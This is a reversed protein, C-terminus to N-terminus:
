SNVVRSSAGYDKYSVLPFDLCGCKIHLSSKSFRKLFENEIKAAKNKTPVNLGVLGYAGLQGDFHGVGLDNHINKLLKIAGSKTVIYGYAGWGSMKDPFDLIRSMIPDVNLSSGFDSEQNMMKNNVYILDYSGKLIRSISFKSPKYYFFADDELILAVDVDDMVVKELASIHALFCGLAGPQKSMLDSRHLKSRAYEPLYKAVVGPVRSYRIVAKDLRSEMRERKIKDQDLNIYYTPIEPKGDFKLSLGIRTKIKKLKNKSAAGSSTLFSSYYSAEKWFHADCLAEVLELKTWEDCSTSCFSSSVVEIVEDSANNALLYECFVVSAVPDSEGNKFFENLLVNKFFVPFGAKYLALKLITMFGRYSLDSKNKLKDVVDFAGEESETLILFSFFSNVLEKKESSSYKFLQVNGM